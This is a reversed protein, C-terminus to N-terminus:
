FCNESKSLTPSASEGLCLWPLRPPLWDAPLRQTASLRPNAHMSLMLVRMQPAADLMRLVLDIGIISPM